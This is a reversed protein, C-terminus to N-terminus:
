ISQMMYSYSFFVDVLSRQHLSGTPKTVGGTVPVGSGGM